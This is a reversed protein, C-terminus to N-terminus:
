TIRSGRVVWNDTSVNATLEFNGSVVAGTFTIPSTIGGNDGTQLEILKVSSGRINVIIMGSRAGEGGGQGYVDYSYFARSLTAVPFFDVVEGPADVDNNEFTVIQGTGTIQNIVTAGTSPFFYLPIRKGTILPISSGGYFQSLRAIGDLIKNYLKENDADQYFLIVDGNDDLINQLYIRLLILRYMKDRFESDNASDEGRKAAEVLDIGLDAIGHQARNIILTIETSSRIPAGM